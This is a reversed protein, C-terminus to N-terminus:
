KLKLCCSVSVEKVDILKKIKKIHDLDALIESPPIIREQNKLREIRKEMCNCADYHKIKAVNVLFSYLREYEKYIYKKFVFLVDDLDDYDEIDVLYAYVGILIRFSAAEVEEDLLNIGKGRIVRMM